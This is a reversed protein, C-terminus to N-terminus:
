QPASSTIWNPQIWQYNRYFINNGQPASTIIVNEIPIQQSAIIPTVQVPAYPAYAYDTRFHGYDRLFKSLQNHTKSNKLVEELLNKEYLLFSENFPIIYCEINTINEQLDKRKAILARIESEHEFYLDFTIKNYKIKKCVVNNISERTGRFEARFSPSTIIQYEKEIKYVNKYQEFLYERNYHLLANFRLLPINKIIM